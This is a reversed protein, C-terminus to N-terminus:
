GFFEKAKQANIKADHKARWRNIANVRRQRIATSIDGANVRLVPTKLDDGVPIKGTMIDRTQRDKAADIIDDSWARKEANGATLFNPRKQGFKMLNKARNSFVGGEVWEPDSIREVRRGQVAKITDKMSGTQSFVRKAVEADSMPARGLGKGAKIIKAITADSYGEELCVATDFAECLLDYSNMNNLQREKQLKFISLFLLCSL